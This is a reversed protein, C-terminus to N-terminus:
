RAKRKAEAKKRVAAEIGLRAWPEAEDPSELADDPARWYGMVMDRGDRAKYVFPESGAERFRAETAEDVRFYLVDDAIIAFMLEDAYVGAGGFMPKIRVAGLPAFLEEIYARFDKGVAM